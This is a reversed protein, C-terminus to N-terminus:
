TKNIEEEEIDKWKTEDIKGIRYDCALLWVVFLVFTGIKGILIWDM